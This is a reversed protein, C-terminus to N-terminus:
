TIIIKGRMDNQKDSETESTFTYMGEKDAKFEIVVDEGVPLDEDIGLAVITFTHPTDRSTIVLRVTEGKKAKIENPLFDYRIADMKIEGQQYPESPPPEYQPKDPFQKTTPVTIEIDPMHTGPQVTPAEQGSCAILLLLTILAIGRKM